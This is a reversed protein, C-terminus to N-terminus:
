SKPNLPLPTAQPPPQRRTRRRAHHVHCEAEPRARPVGACRTEVGAGWSGRGSVNRGPAAAGHRAAVVLALVSEVLQQHLHVPEAGRRAHDHQRAGVPPRKNTPTNDWSTHRTEPPRLWVPPPELGTAGRLGAWARGTGEGVGQGSGRGNGRGLGSMRSRANSRGPRKSRVMEMSLGSMLPRMWIKM